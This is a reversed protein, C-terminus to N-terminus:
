RRFRAQPGCDRLALNGLVAFLSKLSERADDTLPVEHARAMPYTCLYSSDHRASGGSRM